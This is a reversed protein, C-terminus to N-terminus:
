PAINFGAAKGQVSNTELLYRVSWTTGTADTQYRYCNTPDTPYIPDVYPTAILNEAQLATTVVDTGDICIASAAVPYNSNGNLYLDLAKNLQDMDAVRVADRGRARVNSIAFTVASALLGIIAIVILLEVLTFGKSKM